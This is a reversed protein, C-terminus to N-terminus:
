PDRNIPRGWDDTYPNRLDQDPEKPAKPIYISPPLVEKPIPQGRLLATVGLVMRVGDRGLIWAWAPALAIAGWIGAKELTGLFQVWRDTWIIPALVVFVALAPRVLAILTAAWRYVESGKPQTAEIYRAFDDALKKELEAREKPDPVLRELLLKALELIPGLM